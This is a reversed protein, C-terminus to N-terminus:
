IFWHHTAIKGTKWLLIEKLDRNEPLFLVVDLEHGIDPDITLSVSHLAIPEAVSIM